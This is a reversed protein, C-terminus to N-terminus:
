EIARVAPVSFPDVLLPGRARVVVVEVAAWHEGSVSILLPVSQSNTPTGALQAKPPDAEPHTMDKLIPEKGALALKVPASFPPVLPITTSLTLADDPADLRYKVVIVAGPNPPHVPSGLVSLEVQKTFRM